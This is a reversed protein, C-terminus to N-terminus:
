LPASSSLSYSRNHHKETCGQHQSHNWTCAHMNKVSRKVDKSLLMKLVLSQQGMICNITVVLIILHPAALAAVVVSGKWLLDRLHGLSSFSVPSLSPGSLNWPSPQEDGVSLAYKDAEVLFISSLALAYFDECLEYAMLLALAYFDECLEHAMLLALAFFDECLEHAM